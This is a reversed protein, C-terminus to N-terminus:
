CFIKVSSKGSFDTGIGPILSGIPDHGKKSYFPAGEPHFRLEEGGSALVGMRKAVIGDGDEEVSVKFPVDM